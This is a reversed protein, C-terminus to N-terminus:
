VEGRGSVAVWVPGTSVSAPRKGAMIGPLTGNEWVPRAAPRKAAMVGPLTGSVWVPWAATAQKMARQPESVVPELEVMAPMDSGGLGRYRVPSEAEVMSLSAVGGHAVRLRRLQDETASSPLNRVFVRTGM